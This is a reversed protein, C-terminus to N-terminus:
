EGDQQELIQQNAQHDQHYRIGMNILGVALPAFALPKGRLAQRLNRAVNVGGFFPHALGMVWYRLPAYNQNIITRNAALWLGLAPLVYDAPNRQQIPQENEGDGNELQAVGKPEQPRNAIEQYSQLRRFDRGGKITEVIRRQAVSELINNVSGFDKKMNIKKQTHKIAGANNMSDKWKSVQTYM